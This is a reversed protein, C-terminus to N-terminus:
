KDGSISFGFQNETPISINKYNKSHLWATAVDHSIEFRFEPTFGDLLDIMEERYNPANRNKIKKVLFTIPFVFISLFVFALKLPMRKTFHRLFLFVKHLKSNQPHYLWLCIRGGAKLVPEVLFLSRQTNNTHHIVGSSYLVDFVENAFPLYQLDAQVYWANAAENVQYAAEIAQSLEVGIALASIGAIKTTMMGHGCGIDIIKKNSFYNEEKAVETLFVSKLNSISEHWIKDRKEANLFSWEFEFSAKTKRNRKLCDKLLEGYNSELDTRINQYNSVHAKLFDSYDYISEVLMRPVGNIIPFVFGAKSFLLGTYIEKIASNKYIKEAEEIIELTLETKSVPCRLYELLEHQM